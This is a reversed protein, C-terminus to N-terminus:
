IRPIIWHGASRSPLPRGTVPRACCGMFRTSPWNPFGAPVQRCLLFGTHWQRSSPSPFDKLILRSFSCTLLRLLQPVDDRFGLLFVTEGLKRVAIEDELQSRLAGEGAWLFRALPYGAKIREAVDVLDHYGKQRDLRGVTVILKCDPALGLELLLRARAVTSEERASQANLPEPPRIGNRIVRIREGPVGYSKGVTNRIHESVAVWDQERRQVWGGLMKVARGLPKEGPVLHFVVQTPIRLFGCAVIAAGGKTLWPISIQVADPRLRRLLALVRVFWLLHSKVNQREPDGDLIALPHYVAGARNFDERLSETEPLRPFAAHVDWGKELSARAVKLGYEEVGGRADSPLILLLKM